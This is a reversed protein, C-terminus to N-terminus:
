RRGALLYILAGLFHLFIVVLVWAVRESDSLRSNKICDVIAWIWFVFSLIILMLLFMGLIGSFIFSM